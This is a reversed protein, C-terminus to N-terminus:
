KIEKLRDSLKRIEDLTGGSILKKAQESARRHQELLENLAQTSPLNAGRMMDGINTFGSGGWALGSKPKAPTTAASWVYATTGDKRTKKRVEQNASEEMRKLVGHVAALVNQGKSPEFGAALVADRMDVASFSKSGNAKFINRITPALKTEAESPEEARVSKLAARAAQIQLMRETAERLTEAAKEATEAWRLEEADMKELLPAFPDPTEDSM